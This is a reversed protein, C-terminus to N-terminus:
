GLPSSLHWKQLCAAESGPWACAAHSRCTAQLPTPPELGKSFSYNDQRTFFSLFCSRSTLLKEVPHHQTWPPKLVPTLALPSCSSSNQQLVTCFSMGFHCARYWKRCQRARTMSLCNKPNAQSLLVQCSGLAHHTYNLLLPLHAGSGSCIGEDWKPKKPLPISLSALDWKRLCTARGGVPRLNMWVRWTLVWTNKYVKDWVHPGGYNPVRHCFLLWDLLQVQAAWTPLTLYWFYPAFQTWWTAGEPCPDTKEENTQLACLQPRTYIICLM